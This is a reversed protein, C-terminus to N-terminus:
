RRGRNKARATRGYGPSSEAARSARTRDSERRDKAPPVVSGSEWSALEDDTLPAFFSDPVQFTPRGKLPGIPRVERRADALATLEAVPKNYRCIVVREGELVRDIFESMRAKLDVISVQIMTM